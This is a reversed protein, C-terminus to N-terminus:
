DSPKGHLYFDCSADPSVPVDIAACHGKGPMYLRCTSCQAFQNAPERPALYTFADRRTKRDDTAGGDAHHVHKPLKGPSDHEVFERAVSKPVGTDAGELTSYM